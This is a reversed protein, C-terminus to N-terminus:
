MLLSPDASLVNKNELIIKELEKSGYHRHGCPFNHDKECNPYCCSYHVIPTPRVYNGNALKILENPNTIALDCWVVPIGNPNKLRGPATLEIYEGGHSTKCLGCESYNRAAM